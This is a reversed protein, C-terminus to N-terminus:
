RMRTFIVSYTEGQAAQFYTGALCDNGADYVLNYTCGPYGRDRLELFVRVLDHDIKGNARAVHIPSPNFYAADLRGDTETRRIEIVYGGDARLWRGELKKFTPKRDTKDPEPAPPLVDAPQPQALQPPPNPGSKERCALTAAVAVVALVLVAWVLPIRRRLPPHGPPPDSQMERPNNDAM